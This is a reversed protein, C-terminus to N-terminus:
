HGGAPQGPAGPSAGPPVAAPPGGAANAMVPDPLAAHPSEPPPPVEAPLAAVVRGRAESGPEPALMQDYQAPTIGFTQALRDQFAQEYSNITQWRQAESAGQDVQTHLAQTFSANEEQLIAGLQDTEQATLPRGIAQAVVEPQTVRMAAFGFYTLEKVEGTTIGEKRAKDEVERANMECFLDTDAHFARAGPNTEHAAVAARYAAVGPPSAPKPVPPPPVVLAQGRPDLHAAFSTASYLKDAVQRRFQPFFPPHGGSRPALLLVGGGVVAVALAARALTWPRKM